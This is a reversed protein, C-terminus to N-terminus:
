SAPRVAIGARRIEERLGDAGVVLVDRPPDPRAALYAAVAHASNVVHELDGGLGLQALRAVYEDRTRTSNNTAFYVKWGAGRLRALTQHAHPLVLSGRYLVGDLDFIAVPM